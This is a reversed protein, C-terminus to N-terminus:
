NNDYKASNFGFVLLVNCYRESPDKLDILQNMKRRLFQRPVDHEEEDEICGDEFELVPEKRCRRHNLTSFFQKLKSKVKTRIELFKLKIQAKSQTALRELVDVFSEALAAPNSNCLYIPQEILNFFFNYLYQFTSASGLHQKRIAFVTKRCVFQNFISNQRTRLSSKTM